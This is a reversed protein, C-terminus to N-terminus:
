KMLLSIGAIFLLLYTLIMFAHQSMRRQLRSGAAMGILFFPLSCLTTKLLGFTWVRTFLQTLLVVGNLIIWIGSITARFSAKDRIRGSLYAILLPGGSVFLGHLLGSGALFIESPVSIRRKGEAKKLTRYLGEAAILLVVIGFIRCLLSSQSALLSRLAIGALLFPGMICLIKKWEETKAYQRNGAYVYIGSLMGLLNLVPVATELGVLRIAFPMALITGAFGTIGQIINSFLIVLYFLVNNM